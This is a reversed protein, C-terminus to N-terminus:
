LARHWFALPLDRQGPDDLSAKSLLPRQRPRILPVLLAVPQGPRHITASPLASPASQSSGSPCPLSQDAACAPLVSVESNPVGLVRGEQAAVLIGGEWGAPQQGM